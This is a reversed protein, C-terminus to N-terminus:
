VDLHKTPEDLLLVDPARALGRAIALRARRGGSLLGASAGPDTFGAQALALRVREDREHDDLRTDTALAEAVIEAASMGPAFDPTQPVYGVRVNKRRTCTGSDPTEIGGLIRLLTSKGAGNPGVLGVHDGEHLVFTLGEFLPPGGFSKTIGECSLLVPRPMFTASTYMRPFHGVLVSTPHRDDPM